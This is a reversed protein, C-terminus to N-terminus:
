GPSLSKDIKIGNSQSNPAVRDWILRYGDAENLGYVTHRFHYFGSDGLAYNAIGRGSKNKTTFQNIANCNFIEVAWFRSCQVIELKVTAGEPLEYKVRITENDGMYSRTLAFHSYHSGLLKEFFSPDEFDFENPDFPATSTETALRVAKRPNALAPIYHTAIYYLFALLLIILITSLVRTVGMPRGKIDTGYTKQDHERNSRLSVRALSM